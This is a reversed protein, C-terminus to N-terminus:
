KCKIYKSLFEKIKDQEKLSYQQKSIIQGMTGYYEVVYHIETNVKVYKIENWPYFEQGRSYVILGDQAIGKKYFMCFLFLVGIIAFLYDLFSKAFLVTIIGLIASGLILAVKETTTKITRIVCKKMLTYQKISALLFLIFVAIKM